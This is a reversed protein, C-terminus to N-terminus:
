AWINQTFIKPRNLILKTLLIRVALPCEDNKLENYIPEMWGPTSDPHQFKWAMFDVIRVLNIM